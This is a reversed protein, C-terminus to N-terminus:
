NYSHLLIRGHSTASSLQTSATPNRFTKTFRFNQMEGIPEFPGAACVEFTHRSISKSLSHYWKELLHTRITPLIVTVDPEQM